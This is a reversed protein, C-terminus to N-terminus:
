QDQPEPSLTKKLENVEQESLEHAGDLLLFSVQGFHGDLQEKLQLIQGAPSTYDNAGTTLVVEVDPQSGSFHYGLNSPHLLLVKDAIAPEDVLLGLIFNAGNSYGIFIIERDTIDVTPWQELFSQIKSKYDDHQLTGDVLPAFFRRAAGTGADGLFSLVSAQPYLERALPLLQYENGGTGHFLVVLQEDAPGEQFFYAM